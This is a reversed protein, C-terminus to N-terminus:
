SMDFETPQYSKFEVESVLSKGRALEQLKQEKERIRILNLAPTLAAQKYYAKAKEVTQSQPFIKNFYRYIDGCREFAKADYSNEDATNKFITLAQQYFEKAETINQQRFYTKGLQYYAEGNLPDFAIAEKFNEIALAQKEPSKSFIKAKFLINFYESLPLPSLTLSKNFCALAQDFAKLHYLIEGLNQQTRYAKYQYNSLFHMKAQAKKLLRPYEPDKKDINLSKKQYILSHIFHLGWSDSQDVNTQLPEPSSLSSMKEEVKKLCQKAEKFRGGETYAWTLNIHQELSEHNKSVLEKYIDIAKPYNKLLLYALARNNEINYQLTLNRISRKKHKLQTLALEYYHIATRHNNKLSYLFGFTSHHTISLSPHPSQILKEMVTFANEYDGLAMHIDIARLYYISRKAPLLENYQDLNKLAQEYNNAQKNIEALLLFINAAFTISANRFSFLRHLFCEIEDILAQSPTISFIQSILTLIEDDYPNAQHLELAQRWLVQSQVSNEINENAM